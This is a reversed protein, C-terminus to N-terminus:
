SLPLAELLARDERRLSTLKIRVDFTADDRRKSGQAKGRLSLPGTPLTVVIALPRGPPYAHDLILEVREAAYAVLSGRAGDSVEVAFHLPETV